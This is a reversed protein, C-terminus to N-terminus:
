NRDATFTTENSNQNIVGAGSQRPVTNRQVYPCDKAFHGFLHCAFCQGIDAGRNQFPGGFCKPLNNENTGQFSRFFSRPRTQSLSTSVTGDSKSQYPKFRRSRMARAIAGRLKAADDANDALPSDTYEKFTDWGHKDAIKLLKNRQNLAQLESAVVAQAAEPNVNCLTEIKNLGETRSSNFEFQIKNGESTFQFLSVSSNSKSAFNSFRSDLEDLFLNRQRDLAQELAQSNGAGIEFSNGEEASMVFYFSQSGVLAGKRKSYRGEFSLVTRNKGGTELFAILDHFIFKDLFVRDDSEEAKKGFLM